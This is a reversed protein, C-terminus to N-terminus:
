TTNRGAPDHLASCRPRRTAAILYPQRRPLALQGQAHIRGCKAPRQRDDDRRGAIVALAAAPRLSAIVRPPVRLLSCRRAMADSRRSDLGGVNRTEERVEDRCAALMCPHSPSLTSCPPLAPVTNTIGAEPELTETAEAM